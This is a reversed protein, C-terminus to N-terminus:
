FNIVRRDRLKHGVKKKPLNLKEVEISNITFYKQIVQLANKVDGTSQLEELVMKFVIEDEQYPDLGLSELHSLVAMKFPYSDPSHFSAVEWFKFESDFLVASNSGSGVSHAVRGETLPQSKFQFRKSGWEPNKSNIVTSVFPANELTLKIKQM